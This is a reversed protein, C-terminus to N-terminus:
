HCTGCLWGVRLGGSVRGVETTCHQGRRRSQKWPCEAKNWRGRCKGRGCNSCTRARRATADAGRKGCLQSKVAGEGIVQADIDSLNPFSLGGAPADMPQTRGTSVCQTPPLNSAANVAHLLAIGCGERKQAQEVRDNRNHSSYYEKLYVSLKPFVTEGNVCEKTWREAMIDGPHVRM